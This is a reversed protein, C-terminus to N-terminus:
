NNFVKVWPTPAKTYIIKVPVPPAKTKKQEFVVVNKAAESEHNTLAFPTVLTVLAVITFYM